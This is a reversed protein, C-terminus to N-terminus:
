ASVEDDIETRLLDRIPVDIARAMQRVHDPTPNRDGARWQRVAGATVRCRLAVLEFSKGSRALAASFKEPDFRYQM